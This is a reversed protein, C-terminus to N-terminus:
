KAPVLPSLVSLIRDREAAADGESVPGGCGWRLEFLRANGHGLGDIIMGDRGRVGEQRTALMTVDAYLVREILELHKSFTGKERAVIHGDPFVALLATSRLESLALPDDTTGRERLVFELIRRHKDYDYPNISSDALLWTPDM